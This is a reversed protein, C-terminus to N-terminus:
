TGACLCACRVRAISHMIVLLQRPTLLPLKVEVFRLLGQVAANWGPLRAVGDGPYAEGLAWMVQSRVHMTHSGAALVMNRIKGYTFFIVMGVFKLLHGPAYTYNPWSLLV